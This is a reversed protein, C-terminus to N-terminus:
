WRSTSAMRSCGDRWRRRSGPTTLSCCGPLHRTSPRHGSRLAAAGRRLTFGGPSTPRKALAEIHGPVTEVRPRASVIWHRQREFPYTPLAVRRREEGGHYGIWDVAAGALWLRGVTTQLVIADDADDQPHRITSLIELPREATSAPRALAALTRGPGVEVLISEQDRIVEQLGDWFRVTQRLHRVWYAPDKADEATMWTGTVNSIYPISPPAFEIRGVAERFSDLIPEMM